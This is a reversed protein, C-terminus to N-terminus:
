EEERMIVCKIALYGGVGRRGDWEPPNGHPMAQVRVMFGIVDQQISQHHHAALHCPKCFPVLERWVM